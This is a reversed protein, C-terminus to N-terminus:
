APMLLKLEFMMGLNTSLSKSSISGHLQEISQLINESNALVDVFIAEDENLIRSVVAHDQKYVILSDQSQNLEIAVEDAYGPLSQRHIEYIPYKSHIIAVSPNFCLPMSLLESQETMNPDICNALSAFYAKHLVWEYHMLDVLYPMEQLADFQVIVSDFDQGFLYVNGESPPNNQVFVQAMQKFFQDGVLGLVAPYVEELYERTAAFVNNQYIWLRHKHADIAPSLKDDLGLLGDLFNGQVLRLETSDLQAETLSGQKASVYRSPTNLSESHAGSPPHKERSSALIEETRQCQALLISFEPFDSDWEFLTPRAGHKKVAKAFLNWVQPDVTQNHTDILMVEGHRDIETYGALHYQGILQSDLQNIYENADRKLNKASVYINNLDVLLGCGTRAALANLFEPEPIQLRDFLLYNSPNEVYIQRQLVDQMQEVHQCMIALSQETLPLPLLDPVHRHSYASWALHESVLMPNIEDVLNKLESLHRTNLHDARGLSLGVGHLSIDYHERLELLKARAISDGFYNESHAELFGLAPRQEFIADFLEPRLGLGAQM